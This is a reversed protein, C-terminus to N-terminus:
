VLSNELLEYRFVSKKIRFYRFVPLNYPLKGDGVSSSIGYYRVNKRSIGSYRVFFDRSVPFTCVGISIKEEEERVEKRKKIKIFINCLNNM